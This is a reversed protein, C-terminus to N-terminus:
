GFISNVHESKDMESETLWESGCVRPSGMYPALVDNHVHVDAALICRTVLDDCEALCFSERGVWGPVRSRLGSHREALRPRDFVRHLARGPRGGARGRGSLAAVHGM